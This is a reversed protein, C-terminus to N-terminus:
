QRTRRLSERYRRADLRCSAMRAREKASEIRKVNGSNQFRGLLVNDANSTCSFIEKERLKDNLIIINHSALDHFIDKHKQDKIINSIIRPHKPQALRQRASKIALMAQKITDGDLLSLSSSPTNINIDDNKENASEEAERAESSKVRRQAKFRTDRERRQEKLKKVQTTRASREQSFKTFALSKSTTLSQVEPVEDESTSFFELDPRSM